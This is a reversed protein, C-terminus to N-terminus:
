NFIEACPWIIPRDLFYLINKAISRVWGSQTSIWCSAHHYYVLTGKSKSEYVIGAFFDDPTQFKKMLNNRQTLNLMYMNSLPDLKGKMMVKGSEKNIILVTKDYLIAQCVHYWFTGISLLTKNLGPFIHAKRAEITIYKKSLLDTHSAM